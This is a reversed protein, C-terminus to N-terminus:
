DVADRKELLQYNREYSDLAIARPTQPDGAETVAFAEVPIAHMKALADMYSLSAQWREESMQSANETAQQVLGPDRDGEAWDLVFATPSPMMGYVHPCHIGHSRFLTTYPFLTDTRTSRPPRRIM